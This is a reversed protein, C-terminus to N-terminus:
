VDPEFPPLVAGLDVAEGLEAMAGLWLRPLPLPV